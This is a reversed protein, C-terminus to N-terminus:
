IENDFYFTIPPLKLSKCFIHNHFYALHEINGAIHVTYQVLIYM